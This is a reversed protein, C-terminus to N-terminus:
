ACDRVGARAGSLSSANTASRCARSGAALNPDSRGPSGVRVNLSVSGLYSLVVRSRVKAANRGDAGARSAFGLRRSVANVLTMM